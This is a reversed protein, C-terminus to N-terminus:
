KDVTVYGGNVYFDFGKFYPAQPAHSLVLDPIIERVALTFKILWQEGTGKNMATNDEWDIDAGDLNNNKVFNGLAYGCAIPDEGASTPFESDGFASVM